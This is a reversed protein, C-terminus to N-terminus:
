ITPCSSRTVNGQAEFNTLKVLKENIILNKMCGVFQKNSTEFGRMNTNRHNGMFLPHTTDTTVPGVGIGPEASIKDVSLTVIAKSKIM